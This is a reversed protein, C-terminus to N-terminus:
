AAELTSTNELAEQLLKNLNISSFLMGDIFGLFSDQSCEEITGPQMLEADAKLSAIYEFCSKTISLLNENVSELQCLQIEIVKLVHLMGTISESVATAEHDLFISPQSLITLKAKVIEAMRQAYLLFDTDRIM